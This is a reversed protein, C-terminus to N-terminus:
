VVHNGGNGRHVGPDRHELPCWSGQGQGCCRGGGSGLVAARPLPVDTARHQEWVAGVAVLQPTSSCLLATLWSAAGAARPGLVEAKSGLRSQLSVGLICPLRLGCLPCPGEPCPRVSVDRLAPLPPITMSTTVPISLLVSCLGILQGVSLLAAPCPFLHSAAAFAFPVM